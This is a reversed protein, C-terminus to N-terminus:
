HGAQAMSVAHKPKPALWIVSAAIFFAITVLAMTQNTAIMVSQEDVLNNLAYLAQDHSMGQAQFTQVAQGSRDALGSLESHNYSAKDEWITQVV